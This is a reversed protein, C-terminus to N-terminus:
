AGGVESAQVSVNAAFAVFDALNESYHAARQIMLWARDNAEDAATPSADMAVQEIMAVCWNLHDLLADGLEGAANYTRGEAFRDQNLYACVVDDVAAYLHLLSRLERMSLKGLEALTLRHLAESQQTGMILTSIEPVTTSNSQKDM